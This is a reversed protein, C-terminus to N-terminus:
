RAKSAVSSPSEEEGGVGAAYARWDIVGSSDPVIEPLVARWCEPLNWDELVPNSPDICELLWGDGDTQPHWADDYTFEQILRSDADALAIREGANDFKGSAIQGAVNDRPGYQTRFVATSLVVLVTQGPPLTRAPFTFEVGDTFHIGGLEISETGVNILEVFEANPDGAPADPPHYMLKLVRLPVTSAPDGDFAFLAENLASWTEGDRIRARILTQPADPEVPGAGTTAAPDRPDSGDLTYHITGSGNPNILTLRDDPTLAEGHTPLGNLLFGPPDIAPYLGRDRLQALVLGTRQPFYDNHLRDLEAVWHNDRTYLDYEAVDRVPHHDRRHDGWRASELIVASDVEAARRDYLARAADPTLTGDHFFHRYVRDGFSVRFEANDCLRTLLLGPGISEDPANTYTNVANRNLSKLIHEADWSFFQFRSGDTRNRGTYFNKYGWDENGGWLNLLCYDIFPVIDLYQDAFAQYAAPDALGARAAELMASYGDMSGAVLEDPAHRVIDFDDPDGGLYAAMFRDDPRDHVCYLGWYLGNLFLHVYRNRPSLHGMALQLDNAFADRTYQAHIRQYQDWPHYWTMNLRSDLVLTNHEKLPSDAFFPHELEGPGFEDKFLLRMSLKPVKWNPETSTGGQIQVGCRVAFGQSGDPLILEASTGREWEDGELAGNSYIGAAPDFWDGIPMVLSLAPLSLLAADLRDTYVPDDIVEPDMEYDGAMLQNSAPPGGWTAPFGAPLVPQGFVSAPFLYTQTDVDTPLWGGRFAAARLTTTKDITLPGGYVMGHTATPLAGDLTYRIDAGPTDCAIRLEFPANFFGRDVNFRTDAVLGEFLTANPAGPTPDRFYGVAAGVRGYSIDDQQPPFAPAYSDAVTAGDARVLALYEGDASLKFNTHLEGAPDARDKDSAFVLLRGGPPLTVAPLVWKALEDADDTLSWGTLDVTSASLNELELWDSADGDGDYLTEGNAAMFEAIRISQARAGAVALLCGLLLLM